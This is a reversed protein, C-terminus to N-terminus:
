GLFSMKTNIWGALINFFDGTKLFSLISSSRSKWPQARPANSFSFFLRLSLILLFFLATLVSITKTFIVGPADRVRSHHIKIAFWVCLFSLYVGAATVKIELWEFRLNSRLCFFFLHVTLRGVEVAGQSM